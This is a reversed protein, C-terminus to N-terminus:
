RLLPFYLQRRVLLCSRASEVAAAVSGGAAGSAPIAASVLIVHVEVVYFGIRATRNHASAFM